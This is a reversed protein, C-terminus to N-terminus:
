KRLAINPPMYYGPSGFCSRSCPGVGGSAKNGHIPRRAYPPGLRRPGGAPAHHAEFVRGVRCSRNKWEDRGWGRPPFFDNASQCAPLDATYPSTTTLASRENQSTPRRRKEERPWQTPLRAAYSAAPHATVLVSARPSKPRVSKPPRIARGWSVRYTVVSGTERSGVGLRQLLLYLLRSEVHNERFGNGPQIEASVTSRLTTRNGMVVTLSGHVWQLLLGSLDGVSRALGRSEWGAAIRAGEFCGHLRGGGSKRRARAEAFRDADVQAGGVANDRQEVGGVARKDGSLVFVAM